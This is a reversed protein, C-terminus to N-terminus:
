NKPNTTNNPNQKDADLKEKLVKVMLKGRNEIWTSANTFFAKCQEKNKPRADKKGKYTPIHEDWLGRPEGYKKTGKEKLLPVFSEM